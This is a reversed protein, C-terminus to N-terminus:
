QMTIDEDLLAMMKNLLMWQKVMASLLWLGVWHEYCTPKIISSKKFFFRLCLNNMVLWYFYKNLSFYQTVWTMTVWFVSEKLTSWYINCGKLLLEPQLVRKKKEFWWNYLWSCILLLCNPTYHCVRHCTNYADRGLVLM